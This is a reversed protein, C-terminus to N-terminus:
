SIGFITTIVFVGQFLSLALGALFFLTGEAPADTMAVAGTSLLNTPTSFAWALGKLPALLGGEQLLGLHPTEDNFAAWLSSIAASFLLGTAVAFFCAVFQVSM